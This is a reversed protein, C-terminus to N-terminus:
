EIVVKKNMLPLDGKTVQIFYAGKAKKSLDIEMESNTVHTETVMEGNLSYVQVVAGNFDADFRVTIKGTSPNPFVNIKSNEVEM